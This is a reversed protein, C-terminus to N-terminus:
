KQYFTKLPVDIGFSVFVKNSNVNQELGNINFYQTGLQAGLGLYFPSKQLNWHYQFSPKFVNKFAFVNEYDEVNVDRLTLMEGLDLLSLFLSHSGPRKNAYKKKGLWSITIGIPITPSVDFFNGDVREVGNWSEVGLSAGVYANLGVTMQQRRKIRSSGPPDAISNLLDEVQSSSDADILDAIFGGYEKLFNIAPDCNPGKQKGAVDSLKNFLRIGSSVAHRHDKVNLFYIFDTVQNTIEPLKDLGMEKGRRQQVIPKFYDQADPREDPDVTLPWEHVRNFLSVGFSLKKYFALSDATEPKGIDERPLTSIDAITAQILQALGDPSFRGLDKINSMRQYLLGLFAQEQKPESLITDLTARGIWKQDLDDTRLGYMMYTLVETFQLMPEANRKAKAEIGGYKNDISDLLIRLDVLNSSFLDIQNLINAYPVTSFQNFMYSVVPSANRGAPNRNSLTDNLTFLRQEIQMLRERKFRLNQITDKELDDLRSPQPGPGTASSLDAPDLNEDLLDLTDMEVDLSDMEMDLSDTALTDEELISEIDDIGFDSLDEDM